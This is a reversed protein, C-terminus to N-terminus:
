AFHGQENLFRGKGVREHFGALDVIDCAPYDVISFSAIRDHLGITIDGYPNAEVLIREKSGDMHRLDILLGKDTAGYFSLSKVELAFSGNAQRDKNFTMFYIFM